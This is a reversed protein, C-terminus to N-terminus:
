IDDGSAAKARSQNNTMPCLKPAIKLPPPLFQGVYGVKIRQAYILDLEVILWSFLPCLFEGFEQSSSVRTLSFARKVMKMKVRSEQAQVRKAKLALTNSKKNLQWTATM